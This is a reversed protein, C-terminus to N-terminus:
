EKPRNDVVRKAKGVSREIGGSQVVRVEASVGILSKIKHALQAAAAEGTAAGAGPAREVLM